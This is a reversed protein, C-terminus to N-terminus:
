CLVLATSLYLQHYLAVLALAPHAVLRHVPCPRAKEALEQQHQQLARQAQALQMHANATSEPDVYYELRRITDAQRLIQEESVAMLEQLKSCRVHLVANEQM